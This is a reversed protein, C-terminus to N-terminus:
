PTVGMAQFEDAVGSDLKAAAALDAQGRSKDGQRLYAIGRGYLSHHERPNLAIVQDYTTIADAFHGLRSQVLGLSDLITANLPDTHEVTWAMEVTNGIQLGPIPMTATLVRDITAMELNQESPLVTFSQGGNLVDIVKDGRRIRLWHVTMWDTDPKWALAFTGLATMGEPKAVQVATSSFTRSTDVHLSLQVDKLLVHIAASDQATALAPVTLPKIWAAPAGVEPKDAAFAAIPSALVAAIIVCYQWGM